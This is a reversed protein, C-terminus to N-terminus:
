PPDKERGKPSPFDSCNPNGNIAERVPTTIEPGSNRPEDTDGRPRDGATLSPFRGAPWAARRLPHRRLRDGAPRRLRLALAPRPEPDRGRAGAARARDLHGP